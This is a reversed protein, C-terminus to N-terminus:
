EEELMDWKMKGIGESIVRDKVNLIAKVLEEEIISNIRCRRIRDAELVTLDGLRELNEELITAVVMSKNDHKDLAEAIEPPLSFSTVRTKEFANKRPRAM